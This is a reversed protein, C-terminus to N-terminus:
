AFARVPQDEDEAPSRTGEEAGLLRPRLQAYAVTGGLTPIWFAIAHYVLVAAAAHTLPIGYTALAGVLGADLVGVGGPVPMANALYGVLYAIMLAAVPPAPGVAALTTWLVAIDFFLYGLGGLLRWSPHTLARRAAPIGVGVDALWARRARTASTRRSLRPVALAVITASAGALVPVGARVVDHPGAGLGLLLFVGAAALTLVNIASTLFFLASSRQIIERTPMGILHLLWGGAALSGVGGGPLLAGSGMQSWALERAVQKRIGPFFMRFIVLFSLCSALELGIAAAVLGPNVDAVESVVPRLDPVALLVTLVCVALVVVTLLRRLAVGRGPEAPRAAADAGGEKPGNRRGPAVTTASM